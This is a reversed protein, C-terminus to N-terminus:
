ANVYGSRTELSFYLFYIRVASSNRAKGKNGSKERHRDVLRYL